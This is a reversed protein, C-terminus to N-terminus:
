LPTTSGQVQCVWTSEARYAEVGSRAECTLVPQLVEGMDGLRIGAEVSPGQVDLEQYTVLLCGGPKGSGWTRGYTVSMDEELHM